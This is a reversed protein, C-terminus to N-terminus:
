LRLNRSSTEQPGKFHAESGHPAPLPPGPGGRYGREAPPDSPNCRPFGPAELTESNLGPGSGDMGGAYTM